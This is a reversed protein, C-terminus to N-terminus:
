FYIWMSEMKDRVKKLSLMGLRPDDEPAEQHPFCRESSFLISPWLHSQFMNNISSIGKYLNVSNNLVTCESAKIGFVLLYCINSFQMKSFSLDVNRYVSQMWKKHIRFCILSLCITILNFIYIWCVSEIYTVCYSAFGRFRSFHAITHKVVSSNFKENM